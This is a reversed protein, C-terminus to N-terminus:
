EKGWLKEQALSRSEEDPEAFSGSRIALLVAALKSRVGLKTLINKVHSQVTQTTILLEEAVEATSKGKALAALVDLERRSLQGLLLRAESRRTADEHLSLVVSELEESPLVMEGTAAQKIISPLEDATHTKAVFGIAGAQIAKVIRERRGSGTLILVQADPCLDKVMSTARIGSIEPLELDMLIVDPCGKRCLELAEEATGAMGVVSLDDDAGIAVALMDRFVRHDYVVLVKISETM